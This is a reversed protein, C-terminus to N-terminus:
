KTSNIRDASYLKAGHSIPRLTASEVARFSSSKPTSAASSGSWSGSGIHNLAASVCYDSDGWAEFIYNTEIHTLDPTFGDSFEKFGEANRNYFTIPAFEYYYEGFNYEASEADASTVVEMGVNKGETTQGILIVEVGLGRLGNIILESASATFGTTIVYVRELNLATSLANSIPTYEATSPNEGIYFYDVEGAAKRYNNYEMECYVEGQNKAGTIATAMVTSSYVDGGTNYRLDLILENVGSSKFGEFVNVLYDDAGMDFESYVLYGVTKSGSTYINKYIVPNSTHTSPAVTFEGVETPYAGSSEDYEAITLIVSSTEASYGMLANYCSELSSSSIQARNYKTVYMGRHLGARDAPSEDIVSAILLYYNSGVSVPYVMNIGFDNATSMARTSPTYYSSSYSYTTLTSYYYRDGTSYYGGDEDINEMRSLANSFFTDSEAWYNLQSKVKIFEDNWLYNRTMHKSIWVNSDAGSTYKDEISSSQFVECLDVGSSYGDIDITVQATRDLSDDANPKIVITLTADGMEGVGESFSLWSSQSSVEWRGMALFTITLEGGYNDIEVYSDKVSYLGYDQTSGGNETDNPETAPEESCGVIAVTTLFLAVKRLSRLFNTM